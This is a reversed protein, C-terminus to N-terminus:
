KNFFGEVRKKLLDPKRLWCEWVVFVQWGDKRLLSLIKKDREINGSRKNQWFEANTKPTVSGYKCKHMHWYCGHVFIIKRRSVFVLDPKGPLSKVHLRFRYGLGHVLSRVIIEPRTDKSRIRSMNLKRQEPTLVDTM